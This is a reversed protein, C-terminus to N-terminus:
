AKGKSGVRGIVVHIHVDQDLIQFWGKNLHKFYKSETGLM